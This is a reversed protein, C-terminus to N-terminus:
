LCLSLLCFPFFSSLFAHVYMYAYVYAGLFPLMAWSRPKEVEWRRVMNEGGLEVMAGLAM